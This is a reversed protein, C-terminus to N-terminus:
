PAFGDFLEDYAPHVAVLQGQFHTSIETISVGAESCIGTMEDCYTQSGAALALDFLRSDWTPIQVGIYGLGRAWSALAALSNFPPQDGMFQALFIGPGRITKMFFHPESEPQWRWGNRARQTSASWRTLSPWAGFPSRCWDSRPRRPTSIQWLCGTSTPLPRSLDRLTDPRREAFLYPKRTSIASTAARACPEQVATWVSCGCLTTTATHGSSVAPRAM